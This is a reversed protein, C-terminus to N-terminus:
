PPLAVWRPLIPRDHDVVDESEDQATEGVHLETRRAVKKSRASTEAVGEDRKKLAENSRGLNGSNADSAAGTQNQSGAYEKLRAEWANKNWFPIDGKGVPLHELNVEDMEVRGGRVEVGDDGDDTRVSTRDVLSEDDHDGDEEDTVAQPIPGEEAVGVDWADSDRDPLGEDGSIGRAQKLVQLSGDM